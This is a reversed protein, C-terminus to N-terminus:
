HIPIRVFITTGQDPASEVEVTGGFLAARERMGILGFEKGEDGTIATQNPDFGQGNDEVILVAYNKRYELLVDVRSAGAHKAVNNLSEQAIRYLHTEIEPALRTQRFGSTHFEAHINFYRAWEKVRRELAAALGVDDLVPPRLQWALFDADADLQMAIQELREVQERLGNQLLSRDKLPELNLRLATLHQGMQDHLDRSVRRREEEQSTVLRRLLQQRVAEARKREAVEAQLSENAGALERTRAAVRQELEERSRRLEEEVEKRASIDQALGVLRPGRPGTQLEAHSALWRVSGDALAVRFEIRFPVGTGITHRLATRVRSQDEAHVTALVTELSMGVSPPLGHLAWTRESAVFADTAPDSEWTGARAAELAICLREESQYLAEEARKHETIDVFNLVVGEIRGETTHYPLLRAIFCRGDRSPVERETQHRAALTEAADALLNEYDIKHSIDALSRGVDQPILNFIDLARPTYRKIRLGRDLFITAIETSAMLNRLDDNAASIQEIRAKLEQNVARLEENITQLEEKGAEVEETTLRLEENAAQLEENSTQYREVTVRLEEKLRLVENELHSILREYSQRDEDPAVPLRAQAKQEAIPRVKRRATGDQNAM